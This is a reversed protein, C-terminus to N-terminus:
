YEGLEITGKYQDSYPREIAGIPARNNMLMCSFVSTEGEKMFLLETNTNWWSNIISADSSSVYRVEFEIADYSGFKYMESFGSKSRHMTQIKEGSIKYNWEPCLTIGNDSDIFLRYAM